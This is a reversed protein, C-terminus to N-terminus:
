SDGEKAQHVKLIGDEGRSLVEIRQEAESLKENLMRVLGVGEEFAKLADELVLEGSELREIIGELREMGKEFRPESARGSESKEKGKSGKTM